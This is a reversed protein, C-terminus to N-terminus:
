RPSHDLLVLGGPCDGTRRSGCLARHVQDIRASDELTVRFSGHM